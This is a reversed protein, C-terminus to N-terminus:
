VLYYIQYLIFISCFLLLTNLYLRLKNGFMLGIFSSFVGGIFGGLTNDIIDTIDPFGIVFIYQTAEYAISLLFALIVTLIISSKGRFLHIFLGLPVFFLINLLVETYDFYQYPELNITRWTVGPHLLVRPNELWSINISKILSWDMKAVIIWTLIIFYVLFLVFSLFKSEFFKKM